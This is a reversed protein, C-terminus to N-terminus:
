RKGIGVREGMKVETEIGRNSNLILDADIEIAGEELLLVVTSGGFKFYGKEEGREVRDNEYTRVMSGVMTAGVEMMLVSGFISNQILTYERKNMCILEVKKRLAIPSVSYYDGSIKSEELVQGDVPFHYRHYDTPCLRFIMLSGNLYKEALEDDQIFEQVNFRYGKVIFDKNRINPYVLVKADAPSVFVLSDKDISRVGPKLQRYFFDNFCQYEQKKFDTMDIQYDRVFEVIKNKSSPRDMAQGYWESLFKRKVIAEMSLKGIPNYYLWYLWAEGAVKEEVLVETGRKYYKIAQKKGFPIFGLILICVLLLILIKKLLTKRM